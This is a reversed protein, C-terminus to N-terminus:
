TSPGVVDITFTAAGFTDPCDTANAACRAQGAFPSYSATRRVAAARQAQEPFEAFVSEGHLGGDSFDRQTPSVLVLFRNPGAPAGATMPWSARPLSISQGAAITNNKDLGNPFLMLYQGAPDVMFVYVYGARNSSIRFQLRDKNIRATGNRSAATVRISPDSLAAIRELEGGPTYPPLPVTVAQTTDPAANSSASATASSTSASAATSSAVQAQTPLTPAAHSSSAAHAMDTRGVSSATATGASAGASPTTSPAPRMAYWGGLAALGVVAVASVAIAAYRGNKSHPQADAASRASAPSGSVGSDARANGEPRAASAAGAELSEVAGISAPATARQAASALADDRSDHEGGLALGMGTAFTQVSQPREEPRVALAHDITQVFAPSYRDAALTALPVYSDSMMRGVSPPPTKGVIAFYVVAALAYIDTWPGQKLTPVEAYQEVPAYGPKLIVTLAQTMDGIVRRAAGFDLLLPRGSGKLLLINDPAIDRHYCQAAHMVGLASLLPTLLARLWAEDPPSSMARLTDRLTEGEYYPMVMYATGNAEWFRYVKVLSHHDFQALLRAENVFSKLGARFTEEHRESRVTVEANNGRSALAAPMYEKLAVNRGLQTDYALYVIGFGGEGILGKIEFEAVRTGIALAHHSDISAASSTAPRSDSAPAQSVIVTKDDPSTMPNPHEHSDLRAASRVRM